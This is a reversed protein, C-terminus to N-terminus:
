SPLGQYGGEREGDDDDPEEGRAEEPPLVGEPGADDVAGQRKLDHEVPVDGLYM